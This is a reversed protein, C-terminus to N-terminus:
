GIFNTYIKLAITMMMALEHVPMGVKKFPNFMREIGDTITYTINNIYATFYWCSLINIKYVYIDAQRIGEKTFNFIWIVM